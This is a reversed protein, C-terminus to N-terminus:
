PVTASVPHFAGRGPRCRARLRAPPRGCVREGGRLLSLRQEQAGADGGALRETRSPSERASGRTRSAHGLWRDLEGDREPDREPDLEIGWNFSEKLDLKADDYMKTSGPRLYGHHFQNSAAERKVAEPLRFFELAAHRAREVLAGDVGHNRVYLFGVETAARALEAGVAGPDTGDRLPAVDIVPVEGADIPEARARATTM